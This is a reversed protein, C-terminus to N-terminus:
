QIVQVKKTHSIDIMLPDAYYIILTPPNLNPDLISLSWRAAFPGEQGFLRNGRADRKEIMIGM